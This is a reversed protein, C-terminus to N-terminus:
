NEAPTPIKRNAVMVLGARPGVCGGIWHSTPHEKGLLLTELALLCSVEM